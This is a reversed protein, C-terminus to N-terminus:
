PVTSVHVVADLNLPGYLHPFPEALGPVQEYRLEATLRAEDVHLLVVDVVGHFFRDRVGPWQAATSCHIFGEDELSRGLTSVTYQAARQAAAWADPTTLHFIM